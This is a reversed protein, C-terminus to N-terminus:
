AAGNIGGPLSSDPSREVWAAVPAPGLRDESRNEIRPLRSKHFLGLKRPGWLSREELSHRGRANTGALFALRAATASSRGNAIGTVKM